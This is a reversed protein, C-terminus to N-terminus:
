DVAAMTDDDYGVRVVRWHTCAHPIKRIADFDVMQWVPDDVPAGREWCHETRERQESLDKNAFLDLNNVTM